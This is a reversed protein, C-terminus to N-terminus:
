SINDVACGSLSLATCNQVCFFNRSLSRRRRWSYCSLDSIGDHKGRVHPSVRTYRQVRVSGLGHLRSKWRKCKPESSRLCTRASCISESDIVINKRFVDPSTLTLGSEDFFNSGLHRLLCSRRSLFARSNRDKTDQRRTMGAM